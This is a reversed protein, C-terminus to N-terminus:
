RQQFGNGAFKLCRFSGDFQTRAFTQRYQTLVVELIIFMGYQISHEHAMRNQPVNHLLFIRKVALLVERILITQAYGFQFFFKRLHATIICFTIRCSQQATQANLLIQVIRQHTFQATLLLYAHHQGLGQEAFRVVQQEVLRRVVEVQFGHLPQFRIQRFEFVRHQNDAVVTVEQVRDTRM